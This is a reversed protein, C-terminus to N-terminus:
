GIGVLETAVPQRPLWRADQQTFGAEELVEALTGMEECEEIFASVAERLSQKASEITEGFSSVDLEPCIGVYLDGERFIEVRVEISQQM